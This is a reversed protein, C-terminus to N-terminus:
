RDPPWAIPSANTRWVLEAQLVGKSDYSGAAVVKDGVKVVPYRFSAQAKGAEVAVTKRDRTEISLRVGDVQRVTGAIQHEGPSGSFDPKEEVEFEPKKSSANEGGRLNLGFIDLERYSAVYVKGNAVVPVINASGGGYIWRGARVGPFLPTLTSGSPTGKFAYLWVHANGSSVTPRSVAWIIAHAKGKSSVSTFFGPAETTDPMSGTAVSLLKPKPSTELNWLALLDQTVTGGSSTVVHPAGDNFYTPGCWCGNGMSEVDLAGVDTPTFGGMNDRNLLFMRGDKGNAVLMHPVAGAQPPLAMVGASGVDTDGQDLAAVNAPTFLFPPPTVPRTIDGKLKVVSEQINTIGDYTTGSFDSNGTNFYLNGEPDAAIGYGSMWVSSLFMHNPETTQTDNLSNTSLETLNGAQWGLVWGRSHPGPDQHDSGFDCFSGFGAYINGNALLLGPRQRQYKAQFEFTTGDALAHSAKVRRPPIKDALTELNLAHVYYEPEAAKGQSSELVYAIVYMTKSQLDIAPTGDIGVTPGNNGCGIPMPVAEGLNVKLLKTDTNADIAYVNNNETAVYVVDHRSGAIRMRPVILPQTDVQDNKDDLNLRLVILSASNVNSYNLKKESANWGTRLNDYHYTRVAVSCGALIAVSLLAGSFAIMQWFGQRGHAHTHSM